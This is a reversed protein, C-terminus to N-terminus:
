DNVFTLKKRDKKVGPFTLLHNHMAVYVGPEVLCAAFLAETVNQAADSDRFEYPRMAGTLIIPCKPDKIEEFLMNGTKELTDTGHLIIIADSIGMAQRAIDLIIERDNETIDLSDKFIVDRQNINADPLRLTSLIKSLISHQNSLAGNQENYTKEITGGTTIFTIEKM